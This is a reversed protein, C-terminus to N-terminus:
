PPLSAVSVSGLSITPCGTVKFSQMPPNLGQRDTGNLVGMIDWLLEVAWGLKDSSRPEDSIHASAGGISAQKWSGPTSADRLTCSLHGGGDTPGGEKLQLWHAPVRRGQPLQWKDPSAYSVLHWKPFAAWSQAAMIYSLCTWWISHTVTSVQQPRIQATDPFALRWGMTCTLRQPWIIEKIELSKQGLYSERESPSGCEGSGQSNM